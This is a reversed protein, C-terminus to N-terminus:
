ENQVDTQSNCMDIKAKITDIKEQISAAADYDEESVAKDQEAMLKNLEEQLESISLKKPQETHKLAFTIMESLPNLLKAAFPSLEVLNAMVDNAKTFFDFDLQQLSLKSEEVSVQAKAIDGTLSSSESELKELQQTGESVLKENELIQANISSLEKNIQQAGKFNKSAVAAKKSAELQPVKLKANALFESARQCRGRLEITEDNIENRRSESIQAFKVASDFNNKAETRKESYLFHERCLKNVIKAATECSDSDREGEDIQQSIKEIATTVGNIETERKQVTDVLNQFPAEIERIRRQLEVGEQELAQKDDILNQKDGNFSDEAAKMQNQNSTIKRKIDNIENQHLQIERKLEEIKQEHSLQQKHLDDLTEIFPKKANEIQNALDIEMQKHSEEHEAIPKKLSEILNANKKREIEITQQDVQQDEKLSGLRKDLAQKRVRLSPLETQSVAAHSLFHQPAENALTMADAIAKTFGSQSMIIQAKTKSIQGNLQDAVDFQENKLAEAQKKEMDQLSTQSKDYLNQARDLDKYFESLRTVFTKCEDDLGDMELNEEPQQYQQQSSQFIQAIQTPQSMPTTQFQQQPPQEFDFASKEEQKSEGFSFESVENNVPAEIVNNESENAFSFASETNQPPQAPKPQTHTQQFIQPAEQKALLSEFDSNHQDHEHGADSSFDQDSAESDNSSNKIKNLLNGKAFKPQKSTTKKGLSKKKMGIVRSSKKAPQKKQALQAPAAFHPAPQAQEVPEASGFSFESANGSDGAPIPEDTFSFASEEDNNSNSVPGDIFGFASMNKGRLITLHM